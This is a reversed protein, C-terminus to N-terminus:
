GAVFPNLLQIGAKAPIVSLYDSAPIGSTGKGADSPHKSGEAARMEGDDKGPAKVM